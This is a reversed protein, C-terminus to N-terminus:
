WNLTRSCPAGTKCSTNKFTRGLKPHRLSPQYFIRRLTSGLRILPSFRPKKRPTFSVGKAPNMVREKTAILEEKTTVAQSTVLQVLERFQVRTLIDMKMDWVCGALEYSMDLAPQSYAV